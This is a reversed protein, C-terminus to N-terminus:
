CLGIKKGAPKTKDQEGNGDRNIFGNAGTGKSFKAAVEKLMTLNNQYAAEDTNWALALQRDAALGFPKLEEIRKKATDQAATFDKDEKALIDDGPVPLSATTLQLRRDAIRKFDAMAATRATNGATTAADNVLKDHSEKTFLEGAKVKSDIAKTVEDTMSARTSQLETRASKATENLSAIMMQATALVGLLRQLVDNSAMAAPVKDTEPLGALMTNIQNKVETFKTKLPEDLIDELGAICQQMEKGIQRIKATAEVDLNGSASATCLQLKTKAM